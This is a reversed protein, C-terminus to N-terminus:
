RDGGLVGFTRGLENLLKVSSEMANDTTRWRVDQRAFNEIENLSYARNEAGWETLAKKILPDTLDVADPNLELLDAVRDVIPRAVEAVTKGGRIDDAYPAYKATAYNIMKTRFISADVTGGSKMITDTDWFIEAQLNSPSYGFDKALKYMEAVLNGYAGGFNERKNGGPDAMITEFIYKRRAVENDWFGRTRAGIYLARLRDDVHARGTLGVGVGIGIQQLDSMVTAMGSQVDAEASSPDTAMQIIWDRQSKPTTKFWNTNAVSMVFRDPTWKGALAQNLLDRIEPIQDALQAVFGYSAKYDEPGPEPRNAITAM